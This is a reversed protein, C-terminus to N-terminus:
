NTLLAGFYTLRENSLDVLDPESVRVMLKDKKNLQYVGYSPVSKRYKPDCPMWDHTTMVETDQNSYSDSRKVVEVIFHITNSKCSFSQPKRYTIQLYLSYFGDQPVILARDREEYKFGHTYADGEHAEWKLINRSHNLKEACPSSTSEPPSPSTLHARPKEDKMTRPEAQRAAAAYESVYETSEVDKRISYNDQPIIRVFCFIGLTVVLLVGMAFRSLCEHRRTKRCHKLLVQLLQNEELHPAGLEMAELQLASSESVSTPLMTGRSHLSRWTFLFACCYECPKRYVGNKCARNIHANLLLEIKLCWRCM